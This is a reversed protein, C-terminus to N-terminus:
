VVRLEGLVAYTEASIVPALGIPFHAFDKFGAVGGRKLIRDLDVIPFDLKRSLEALAVNFERARRVLPDRVFQYNHVLKGAEVTPINFFVIQAGTRKRLLGIIKEYNGAFGEVSMRGISEFNERFWRVADLDGLVREMPQNLWWGGPDVLVGTQRHRYVNRVADPGASFFVASKPFEERGVLGPVSFTREFMLPQFYHAPIKLKRVIEDICDGPLDNLTQLILDSRSGAIEGDFFICCSGKLTKRIEPKCAFITQLHCAGKIYLGVRTGGRRRTWFLLYNEGAIEQALAGRVTKYSRRLFRELRTDDGALRRWVGLLSRILAKM